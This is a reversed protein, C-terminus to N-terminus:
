AEREPMEEGVYYTFRAIYSRAQVEVPLEPYKRSPEMLDVADLPSTLCLRAPVGRKEEYREMAEALKARAPKKRDADYWGVFSM